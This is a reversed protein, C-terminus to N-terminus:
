EHVSDADLEVRRNPANCDIRQQQTGAAPCSVVPERSGVGETRIRASTLGEETLVRKVTRARQESLLQNSAASGIADAHGRVTITSVNDTPQARLKEAIKRLEARGQPTISEYNGKGFAFLVDSSVTFSMRRAPSPPPPPPPASSRPAEECAVVTSARNVFRRQERSGALAREAEARALPVAEGLGSDSVQVFYTKGGELSVRTKPNAKGGYRPADGIYAELSHVGQPVCFRTYRSASLATHFEGDVYIHAGNRDNGASSPTASRFFIVQSLHSAVGPAASYFAEERHAAANAVPQAGAASALFLCLTSLVLAPGRGAGLRRKSPISNSQQM